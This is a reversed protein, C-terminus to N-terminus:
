AKVTSVCGLNLKRFAEAPVEFKEMGHRVGEVWRPHCFHINFGLPRRYSRWAPDCWSPVPPRLTNNVIGGIIAGYHMKDYPEEGTLLEWMVIGFSFVDVKETVLSSNGNLLEPAMWPLTGRVGGSVMTQHKVKSLGLDGVKCIPRHPDRMNVLLNECKLDFHVINKGHLYEMGFAADMAILIRKRRDITRDKKQLVQKLSGNVMYETVTALTGGPGDAVVGYFAVVNPHHLHGLNCAERWFDEILREQESPRGAFCSAKIRKIAVDTGRWKGHYVTGFTGSGLERLEELDANKITQLGRAIAKAAPDSGLGTSNDKDEDVKDDCGPRAEEHTKRDTAIDLDEHDDATLEELTTGDSTIHREFTEEAMGAEDLKREWLGAALTPASDLPWVAEADGSAIVPNNDALNRDQHKEPNSNLATLAISGTRDLDLADVVMRVTRQDVTSQGVFGEDSDSRSFESGAPTSSTSRSNEGEASPIQTSTTKIQPVGDDTVTKHYEPYATGEVNSNLIGGTKHYESYAAGDVNSNLIGASAGVAPDLGYSVNSVPTFAMSYLVNEVPKVPHPADLYGSGQAQTGYSGAFHLSENIPEELISPISASSSPRSLKGSIRGPAVIPPAQLHDDYVRDRPPFCPETGVDESGVWRMDSNLVDHMKHKQQPHTIPNFAPQVLREELVRNQGSATQFSSTQQHSNIEFQPAARLEQGNGDVRHGGAALFESDVPRNGYQPVHSTEPLTIRPKPSGYGGWTGLSQQRFHFANDLRENRRNGTSYDGPTILDEDDPLHFGPYMQQLPGAESSVEEEIEDQRVKGLVKRRSEEDELAHMMVRDQLVWDGAREQGDQYRSHISLQEVPQLLPEQYDPRQPQLMSHLHQKSSLMQSEKGQQLGHRRTESLEQHDQLPVVKEQFPNHGKYQPVQPRSLLDYQPQPVPNSEFLLQGPAPVQEHHHVEPLQQAQRHLREENHPIHERHRPPSSSPRFSRSPQDGYNLVRRSFQDAYGTGNFTWQHQMQPHRTPPLERFNPRPSSPASGVHNSQSGALGPALAHSSVSRPIYSSNHLMDEQYPQPQSPPQQEGQRYIGENNGGSQPHGSRFLHPIQQQPQYGQQQQGSASPQAGAAQHLDSRRYSDQQQDLVHPPWLPQPLPAQPFLRQAEGPGMQMDSIQHSDVRSPPALESHESLRALKGHSGVRPMKTGSLRRQEVSVPHDQHLGDIYKKPPSEPGRRSDTSRYHMDHQSGSSTGSGGYSENEQHSVEKAVGTFHQGARQTEPHYQFQHHHEGMLTIKGHLTRPLLPPSSPASSPASPANSRHNHNGTLASVPHAVPVRHVMAPDHHTALMAVPVSDPGRALGWSPESVDLGLLDSSGPSAGYVGESLRRSSSSEPIGNVADVFRQETNRLDGLSDFDFPTSEAESTFLFVRLRSNGDAMTLKDYEEMMIELDEESSVSVLADLDEDPLQYKFALSQNYVERMKNKLENYTIDRNVAIIRTQGGVYRLQHDFPRPLIRGGFSCMFKVRSPPFDKGDDSPSSSHDPAASGMGVSCTGVHSEFENRFNPISGADMLTKYSSSSSGNGLKSLTHRRPVLVAQSGLCEFFHDLHASSYSRTPNSGIFGVSGPRITAFSAKPDGEDVSHSIAPQPQMPVGVASRKSKRQLSEEQSHDVGSEDDSESLGMRTPRFVSQPVDSPSFITEGCPLSDMSSISGESSNRKWGLGTDHTGLNYNDLGGKSRPEMTVSLLCFDRSDQVSNVLAGGNAVKGGGQATQPVIM